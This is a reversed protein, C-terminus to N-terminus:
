TGTHGGIASKHQWEFHAVLCRVFNILGNRELRNFMAAVKFSNSVALEELTVTEHEETKEAM